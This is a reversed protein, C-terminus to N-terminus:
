ALGSNDGDRELDLAAAEARTDILRNV